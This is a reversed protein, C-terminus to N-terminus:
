FVTECLLNERFGSQEYLLLKFVILYIYSHTHAHRELLKFMIPLVSITYLEDHRKHRWKEVTTGVRAKKWPRPFHASNISANYINIIHPAIIEDSLELLKCSIGDLGTATTASM